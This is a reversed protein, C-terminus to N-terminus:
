KLWRVVFSAPEFAVIAHVVVPSSSPFMRPTASLAVAAGSVTFTPRTVTVTEANGTVTDIAEVHAAL